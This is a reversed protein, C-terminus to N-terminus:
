KKVGRIFAEDVWRCYEEVMTSRQISKLVTRGANFNDAFYWWFEKLKGLLHAPGFLREKNREFIEDHFKRLAAPDPATDTGRRISMLLYPDHAAGRGIMWGNIQPFQRVKDHFDGLTTIDGNYVARHRCLAVCRKFAELDVTGTYMQEGTRPHIIVESLPYDNLTPMLRELDLSDALGLRVKVSLRCPLHPVVSDLISRVLDPYPLLGSGRKKRRVQPHPCGLNWNVAKYGLAQLHRGLLLLDAPDNGLIQPILRNRDNEDGAVDKMHSATVEKGKVTTIFPALQYDFPGFYREFATRFICDTVGRLPALYLLPPSVTM